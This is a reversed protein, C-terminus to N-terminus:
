NASVTCAQGADCGGRAIAACEGYTAVKTIMPSVSGFNATTKHFIAANPVVADCSPLADDGQAYNELFESSASQLAGWNDPVRIRAVPTEIRSSLDLISAKWYQKGDLAIRIRYAVGEKWEFPLWCQVGDGEHEFPVCQAAGLPTGELAKWIALNLTKGAGGRGDTQLGAYGGDGDIFYFQHAWYHFSGKGPDRTVEIGFDLSQYGQAAEPWTRDVQVMGVPTVQAHLASCFAFAGLSAMVISSRFMTHNGKPWAVIPLGLRRLARNTAMPVPHRGAYADDVPGDFV